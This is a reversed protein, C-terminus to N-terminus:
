PREASGRREDKSMQRLMPQVFVPRPNSLSASHSRTRDSNVGGGASGRLFTGAGGTGHAHEPLPEVGPVQHSEPALSGNEASFSMRFSRARASRSASPNSGQAPGPAVRRAILEAGRPCGPEVPMASAQLVVM